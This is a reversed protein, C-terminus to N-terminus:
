ENAAAERRIEAEVAEELKEGTAFRHQGDNVTAQKKAIISEALKNALKAWKENAQDQAVKLEAEAKAVAEPNAVLHLAERYSQTVRAPSNFSQPLLTLLQDLSVVKASVAGGNLSRQAHGQADEFSKYPGSVCDFLNIGVVRGTIVAYPRTETTTENTEM